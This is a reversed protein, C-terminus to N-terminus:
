RRRPSSLSRVLELYSQPPDVLEAGFGETGDQLRGSWRVEGKLMLMPSSGRLLVQVTDGPTPPADTRVFVGTESVNALHGHGSASKASYVARDVYRWRVTSRRDLTVQSM